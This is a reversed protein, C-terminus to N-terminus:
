GVFQDFAWQYQPPVVQVGCQKQLTGLPALLATFEQYEQPNAQAYTQITQAAQARPQLAASMLMRQGDPHTNLYGQIAGQSSAVQADIAPQSCDPAAVAAPAAIVAAALGATVAGFCIGLTRRTAAAEAIKM